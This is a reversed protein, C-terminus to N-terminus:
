HEQWRWWWSGHTRRTYRLRQRQCNSRGSAVSRRHRLGEHRLRHRLSTAPSRAGNGARAAGVTTVGTTHPHSRCRAPSQRITCARNRGRPPCSGRRGRHHVRPQPFRPEGSRLDGRHAATRLRAVAHLPQRARRATLGLHGTRPRSRRPSATARPVVRTCCASSATRRSRSADAGAGGIAAIRGPAPAGVSAAGAHAGRVVALVPSSEPSCDVWSRLSRGSRCAGVLARPLVAPCASAWWGHRRCCVPTPPAGRPRLRPQPTDVRYTALAVAPVM